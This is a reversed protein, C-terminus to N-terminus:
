TARTITIVLTNNNPYATVVNNPAILPRLISVLQVASEYKLVYVRTVLKDGSGKTDSASGIYLKADAEPLVKTV